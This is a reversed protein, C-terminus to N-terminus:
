SRRRAAPAHTILEDLGRVMVDAFDAWPFGGAPDVYVTATGAGRGAQLDFLYDGVMVADDPRAKWGALLMLVGQPSPKPTGGERGMVCEDSFFEALGSAALTAIANAHSNRTVIGLRVRAAHLAGLLEPAGPAPRARRALELEIADLRRHRDAADHDPLEALAELIPKGPPLGLERRIAEFDHVAVTLTGDLDFIWHRRGSLV